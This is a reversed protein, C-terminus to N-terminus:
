LKPKGQPGRKNEGPTGPQLSKGQANENSRQVGLNLAMFLADSVDLGPDRKAEYRPFAAKVREQRREKPLRQSAQSVPVREVVAACFVDCERMAQEMRGVAYGYAALGGGRRGAFARDPIEIAVLKPQYAEWLRVLMEVLHDVREPYKMKAPATLREATVLTMKGREDVDIVGVGTVRSGPDIAFIRM